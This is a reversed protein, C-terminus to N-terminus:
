CPQPTHSGRSLGSPALDKGAINEIIKNIPNAHYEKSFAKIDEFTIELM